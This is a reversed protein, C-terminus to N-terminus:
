NDLMTHNKTLNQKMEVQTLEKNMNRDAESKQNNRDAEVHKVTTEVREGAM